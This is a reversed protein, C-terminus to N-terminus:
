TRVTHQALWERFASLSRTNLVQDKSLGARRAVQVGYKMLAFHSVSHADTNIVLLVGADAANAAMLDNLDLREPNANIELCKNYEKAAQVVATM